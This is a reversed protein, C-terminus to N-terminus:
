FFFFWLEIFKRNVKIVYNTEMRLTLSSDAALTSNWVQSTAESTWAGGVNPSGDHLVVQIVNHGQEKLLKKIAARCQSTTIDQVLTHAGRIARIPVLDVGCDFEGRAYAECGGADM